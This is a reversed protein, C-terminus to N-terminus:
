VCGHLKTMRKRKISSLEAFSNRAAVTVAVHFGFGSGFIAPYWIDYPVFLLEYVVVISTPLTVLVVIVSASLVVYKKATRAYLVAPRMLEYEASAETVVLAAPPPEVAGDIAFTVGVLPAAPALTVIVPDLKPVVFPVLLTANLPTAAVGVVQDAVLMPTGTGEPAVVPFTTTVTPLTALLPMVNVTVLVVVAAGLRVLRDGVLPATPVTTVIAPDFKPEVFPVLLTINLPVDAVGVLQDAVLMTTGTGDPAVVPFTTTVTPPTALLPRVNVTVLVVAAGLRVLRDGVLPATPVATVIVPDLRPEVCPVLLTFKLPVDAIGVLQDAVLM